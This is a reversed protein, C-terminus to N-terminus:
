SRSFERREWLFTPHGAFDEKVNAFRRMRIGAPLFALSVWVLAPLGTRPLEKVGAYNQGNATYVIRYGASTGVGVNANSAYVVRAPNRQQLGNITVNASGGAGGYAVASGGAAAAQSTSTSTNNSSNSNSNANAVCVITNQTSVQTPVTGEPCDVVANATVGGDADGDDGGNDSKDEVACRIIGQCQGNESAYCDYYARNGDYRRTCSDYARQGCVANDTALADCTRAIRSPRDADRPAQPCRERMLSGEDNNSAACACWQSSGTPGPYVAQNPGGLICQSNSPAQESDDEDAWASQLNIPQASIALLIGASFGLLILRAFKKWLRPILNM